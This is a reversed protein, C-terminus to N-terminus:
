DKLLSVGVAPNFCVTPCFHCFSLSWNHSMSYFDPHSSTTDHVTGTAPPLSSFCTGPTNQLCFYCFKSLNTTSYSLFLFTLLGGFNKAQASPHPLIRTFASRLPAPSLSSHKVCISTSLKSSMWSFINLIHDSASTQASISHSLWCCIGSLRLRASLILNFSICHCCFDLRPCSLFCRWIM